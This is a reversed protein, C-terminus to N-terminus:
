ISNPCGADKRQRRHSNDRPACRDPQKLDRTWRQSTIPKEIRNTTQIANIDPSRDDIAIITTLRTPESPHEPENRKVHQGRHGHNIAERSRTPSFNNRIKSASGTNCGRSIRWSDQTWGPNVLPKAKIKGFFDRMAEPRYTIIVKKDFVKLSEPLQVLMDSLLPM